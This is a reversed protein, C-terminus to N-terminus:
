ILGAIHLLVRLEDGDVLVIAPASRDHLRERSVIWWERSPDAPVQDEPLDSFDIPQARVALLTDPIAIGEGNPTFRQAAEGRFASDLFTNLLYGLVNDPDDSVRFRGQHLTVTRPSSARTTM